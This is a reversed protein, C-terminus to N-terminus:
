THIHVNRGIRQCYLGWHLSRCNRERMSKDCSATVKVTEIGRGKGLDDRDGNRM